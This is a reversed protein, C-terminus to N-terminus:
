GAADPSKGRLIFSVIEEHAKKDTEDKLYRIPDVKRSVFIMVPIAIIGAISGWLFTYAYSLVAFVIGFFALMRAAAGNDKAVNPYIYWHPYREILNKAKESLGPDPKGRIQLLAYLNVVLYAVPILYIVLAMMKSYFFIAISVIGMLIALIRVM